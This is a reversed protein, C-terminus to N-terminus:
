LVLASHALIDEIKPREEPLQKLCGLILSKLEESVGSKIVPVEKKM